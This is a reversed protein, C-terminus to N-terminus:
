NRKAHELIKNAIKKFHANEPRKKFFDALEQEAIEEVNRDKIGTYLIFPAKGKVKEYFELGNMEPMEYDSIIVDVSTEELYKIANEPSNETHVKICPEYEEVIDSLVELMMQDDDVYLAKYGTKSSNHVNHM